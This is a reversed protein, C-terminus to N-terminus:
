QRIDPVLTVVYFRRPAEAPAFVKQIGNPTECEAMVYYDLFSGGEDPATLQGAYTRRGALTMVTQNWPSSGSHRTFLAPSGTKGNGPVVAFVRVQEGRALLTPRTPVFVRPAAASDPMLAERHAQRIESPLDIVYEKMSAPLRFLALREYKNHMSALTGLDNRTGVINQFDLISERVAPALKLWLPVGQTRVLDRAAQAKGSKKLADAKELVQDLRFALSWSESYPVLFEVHRTLYDLRETEARSSAENTLQRLERAVKAQSQKISESPEYGNWYQFAEDYDGTYEHIQHHGDVIKGSWSSLILGDRDTENLTQALKQAREPRALSAAYSQFYEEPRLSGQWAHRSLFGANANIIRTRWHIGFVGQCGYQFALDMDRQFRYVHFQPLWMAPDDELWPIPWRERSGLKGFEESVPDWGVSDNLASFIVDEPMREHFYAFHRVVGGWGSIVMRKEPTHRQLFDYAQRFPTISLPVRANRSAWNSDEDEWLWVYDVDPYAELLRGLRAELIEKAAVSEPDIPPAPLKPHPNVFLAEPPVARVIEEPISYPEFGVGTRIGLRSAYRLAEAWLNQAKREDEWCSRSQTAAESGFVESAYFGEAGMGYQSTRQPLYGWRNTASTDTFAWHGTRGYEFSLFSETWEKGSSYVHIGLTNFRMRVMAELAARYEERNYVTICNLFDPWPLLGRTTFRPQATWSQNPPPLLLSHAPDLPYVEGDLGFFAGQRELFDFVAYLVAQPSAGTLQVRPTNGDSNVHIIEYGEPHKFGSKRVELKFVFDSKGPEAGQLSGSRLERALGLNRLGRALEKSAFQEQFGAGPETLIWATNLGGFQAHMQLSFARTSAADSTAARPAGAASAEMASAKALLSGAGVLASSDQMFKRRNMSKGSKIIRM